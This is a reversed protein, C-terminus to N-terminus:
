GPEVEADPGSDIPHLRCRTDTLHALDSRGILGALDAQAPDPQTSPLPIRETTFSAPTKSTEVATLDISLADAIVAPEASSEEARKM